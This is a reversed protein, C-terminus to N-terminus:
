SVPVQASADIERRIKRAEAVVGAIHSDDRVDAFRAEIDELLRRQEAIDKAKQRLLMKNYLASALEGKLDPDDTNGNRRIYEDYQGEADEEMGLRHLVAGKKFCLLNYIVVVDNDSMDWTMGLANNVVGLAEKMKQQAYLAMVKHLFSDIAFYEGGRMGAQQWQAIAVDFLAVAEKWRKLRFAARAGNYAAKLSLLRDTTGAARAKAFRNLAAADEGEELAAWAMLYWDDFSRETEPIAQAEAAAIRLKDPDSAIESVGDAADEQARTSERNGAKERMTDVLACGEQVKQLHPAVEERFADLARKIDARSTEAMESQFHQFRTDLHQKGEKGVWDDVTKKAEQVAMKPFRFGIVAVAVAIATALFAILGNNFNAYYTLDGIRKDQVALFTEVELKLRAVQGEMDTRLAEPDAKAAATARPKADGSFAVAPHALAACLLAAALFFRLIM